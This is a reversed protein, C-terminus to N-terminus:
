NIQYAEDCHVYGASKHGGAFRDVKVANIILRKLHLDGQPLARGEREGPLLSAVQRRTAPFETTGGVCSRHLESSPGVAAPGDESNKRKQPPHGVPAPTPFNPVKTPFKPVIAPRNQGKEPKPRINPALFVRRRHSLYCLSNQSGDAPTHTRHHAIHTLPPEDQPARGGDYAIRARRRLLRSTRHEAGRRPQGAAHPRGQSHPQGSRGAPRPHAGAVEEDAEVAGAATGLPHVVATQLHGRALQLPDAEALHPPRPPPQLHIECWSGATGVIHVEEGIRRATALPHERRRRLAELPTHRQQQRRLPAPLPHM